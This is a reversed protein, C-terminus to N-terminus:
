AEDGVYSAALVSADTFRSSPGFDAVLGSRLVCCYDAIAVARATEETVLLVATGDSALHRVVNFIPEHLSVHIGLTLEDILLVKPQTLIARSIALMQQEGGSLQGARQSRREHLVPFLSYVRDYLGKRVSRPPLPDIATLNDAVSLNRFLKRTESVIAVGQRSMQHPELNTVDRGLFTVRGKVVSAGESRLFGAVARVTTTKGAGNAGFLAVVQGPEVTLSVENIGIAGNPYRVCLRECTLM